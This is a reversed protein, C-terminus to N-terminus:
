QTCPVSDFSHVGAALLLLLAWGEGGRQIRAVWGDGCPVYELWSAAFSPPLAPLRPPPMGSKPNYPGMSFCEKLDPHAAHTEGKEKDQGCRPVAPSLPPCRPVAASLPSCYTHTPIRITPLFDCTWSIMHTHTHTHTHTHAHTHARVKGASLIEDGFGVYGYPYRFICLSSRHCSSPLGEVGLARVGGGTWDEAEWCVAPTSCVSM